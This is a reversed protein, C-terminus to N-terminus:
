DIASANASTPPSPTGPEPSMTVDPLQGYRVDPPRADLQALAFFVCGDWAQAFLRSEEDAALRGWASLDAATTPTDAPTAPRQARAWRVFASRQTATLRGLGWAITEWALAAHETEEDAITHLTAAIEPDRAVAASRRAVLAAVTEALAGEVFTAQLLGLLDIGRAPADPLTQLEIDRHLLRGAIRLCATAHRREDDAARHCADVLRAPADVAQLEAAARLFAPVSAWEARADALWADGAAREIATPVSREPGLAYAPSWTGDGLALPRGKIVRPEPGEEYCCHEDDGADRLLKTANDRLTLTRYGGPQNISVPCDHTEGTGPRREKSADSVTITMEETRCFEVPDVEPKAPGTSSEGGGSSSGGEPDDEVKDPNGKIKGFQVSVAESPDADDKGCGPMAGALAIAVLMRTKLADLDGMGAFDLLPAVLREAPVPRERVPTDAGSASCSAVAGIERVRVLQGSAHM